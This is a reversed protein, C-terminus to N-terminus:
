QYAVTVDFTGDQNGATAGGAGTLTVGVRLAGSAVSTVNMGAGDDPQRQRRTKRGRIGLGDCDAYGEDIRDLDAFDAGQM